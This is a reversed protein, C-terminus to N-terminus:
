HVSERERAQVQMSSTQGVVHQRTKNSFIYVRLCLQTGEAFLHSLGWKVKAYNMAKHSSGLTQWRKFTLSPKFKGGAPSHGYDSIM